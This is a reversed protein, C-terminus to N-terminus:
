HNKNKSYLIEGGPAEVKKLQGDIVLQELAAKVNVDDLSTSQWNPGLWWSAVGAISDSASPNRKLYALVEAELQRNRNTNKVAADARPLKFQLTWAM